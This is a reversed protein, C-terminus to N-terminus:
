SSNTPLTKPRGRLVSQLARTVPREFFAYLIWGAVFAAFVCGAVSLFTFPLGLKALATPVVPAVIPHILYLSYSAAGGILLLRPYRGGLYPELAVAGWVVFAAPLVHTFLMWNGSQPWPMFLLISLGGLSLVLGLLFPLTVSTLYRAILMGALFELVRPDCYVAYAPWDPQRLMSLGALPILVISCFVLVNLRFILAITFIAYFFMEFILTWGVGHLPELRGDANYAPIFFYSKAVFSWDLQAHLVAAPIALLAVLKLTTVAWYLPVIRIIRRAAFDQWAVNPAGDTPASALYMVFGSIVFFIDVGSAGRGWVLFNTDLREMTYFTSHTIVVFTAAVLRLVQVGEFVFNKSKAVLFVGLNTLM